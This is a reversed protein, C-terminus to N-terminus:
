YTLKRAPVIEMTHVATTRRKKRNSGTAIEILRVNFCPDCYFHKCTLMGSKVKDCAHIPAKVTPKFQKAEKGPTLKTVCEKKCDLCHQGEYNSRIYGIKGEHFYALFFDRHWDTGETCVPLCLWKAGNKKDTPSLTLM